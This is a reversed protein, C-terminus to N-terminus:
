ELMFLLIIFFCASLDSVLYLSSEFMECIMCFRVTNTHQTFDFQGPGDTTGAAFSYGLAAPCTQVATGNNLHVTLNAMNVFSHRFAVQGKLPTVANQLLKLAFLYQMEGIIRTSEFMDKGPGSAICLENRGNCTSTENDCPLGSQFLLRCLLLKLVFSIFWSYNHVTNKWRSVGTDICKPGATNPSVDGLNTSAFAAVFGGQGPLTNNGNM